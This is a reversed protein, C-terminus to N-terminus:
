ISVMNIEDYVVSQDKQTIIYGDFETSNSYCSIVGEFSANCVTNNSSEYFDVSYTGKETLRFTGNLVCKNNKYETTGVIKGNYSFLGNFSAYTITFYIPYKKWTGKFKRKLCEAEQLSKPAPKLCERFDVKQIEKVNSFSVISFFLM